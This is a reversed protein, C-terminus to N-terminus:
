DNTDFKPSCGLYVAGKIARKQYSYLRHKSLEKDIIDNAASEKILYDNFPIEKQGFENLQAYEVLKDFDAPPSAHKYLERYINYIIKDVKNLRM